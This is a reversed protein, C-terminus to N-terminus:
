MMAQLGALFHSTIVFLKPCFAVIEHTRTAVNLRKGIRYGTNQNHAPM